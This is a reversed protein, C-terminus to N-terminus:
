ATDVGTVEFRAGGSESETVRIKWGHAEVVTQVISMGLGTGESATTYGHDLVSDREEPPIGVGDDEVYFGDDLPGVGITLTSQVAADTPRGHDIANVILNEFVHRLYEEDARVVVGGHIALTARDTDVTAWAERVVREVGVADLDLSAQDVRTLEHLDTIMEDMRDIAAATRDLYAEDGDQRALEIYGSAIQIPNRIDHSVFQRFDDLQANREELQETRAELQESRRRAETVDRAVMVVGTPDGMSNAIESVRLDFYRTESDVTYEISSTSEGDASQGETGARYGSALEPTEAFVDDVPEREITAGEPRGLLRNARPNTFRVMGTEDVVFVADDMNEIVTQKAVPQIDFLADNVYSWGLPLAVLTAGYTTLQVHPWPNLSPVAALHDSLWVLVLLFEFGGAVTMMALHTRYGTFTNKLMGVIAAHGGGVVTAMFLLNAWFLPGFTVVLIRLQGATRAGLDAWYLGAPNAIVGVTLGSGVVLIPGLVRLSRLEARDTYIAAFLWFMVAILPVMAHRLVFWVQKGGVTPELLQGVYLASWIGLVAMLGAYTTAGRTGRQGGVFVGIVVAAATAIVGLAVFPHSLVLVQRAIAISTRIEKPSTRGDTIFWNIGDRSRGTTVTPARTALM